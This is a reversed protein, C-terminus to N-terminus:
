QNLKELLWESQYEDDMDNEDNKNLLSYNSSTFDNSIIKEENEDDDNNNMFENLESKMDNDKSLSNYIEKYNEIPRKVLDKTKPVTLNRKLFIYTYHVSIIFIISLIIQQIIWFFM